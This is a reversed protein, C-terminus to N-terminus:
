IRKSPFSCKNMVTHYILLKLDLQLHSFIIFTCTTFFVQLEDTLVQLM